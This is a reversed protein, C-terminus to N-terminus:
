VINQLLHLKAVPKCGSVCCLTQQPCTPQEVGSGKTLLYRVNFKTKGARDHRLGLSSKTVVSGLPFLSKRTDIIYLMYLASDSNAEEAIEQRWVIKNTNKTKTQKNRRATGQNRLVQYRQWAHPAPKLVSIDSVWYMFKAMTYFFSSRNWKLLSLTRLIPNKKIILDTKRM